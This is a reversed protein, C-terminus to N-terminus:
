VKGNEHFNASLVKYNANDLTMGKDLHRYDPM